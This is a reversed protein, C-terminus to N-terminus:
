KQFKYQHKDGRLDYVNLVYLGKPLNSIPIRNNECELSIMSYSNKIGSLDNIAKIEYSNIIKKDTLRSSYPSIEIYDDRQVFRISLMSNPELPPHITDTVTYGNANYAKIEFRTYLEKDIYATFYGQDYDTEEWTYPYIEGEDWQSIVVRTVGELNDLGIKVEKIYEDDDNIIRPAQAEVHKPLEDMHYYWVKNWRNTPANSYKVVRCRLKGDLTRAYADMPYHFTLDYYDIEPTVNIFDYYYVLDWTGDEKMISVFWGESLLYGTSPDYNSLFQNKYQAFTTVPVETDLFNYLKKNIPTIENNAAYRNGTLISGHYEIDDNTTSSIETMGNQIGGTGVLIDGRWKLTGKFFNNELNTEDFGRIVTSKGFNYNLLQTITENNKPIFYNLSANRNWTTPAYLEYYDTWVTGQTANNFLQCSDASYGLDNLIQAEFPTLADRDVMLYKTGTTKNKAGKFSCSIGLGKAIDRLVISVFDYQSYSTNGQLSFSCNNDIRGDYNYYTIQMEPSFFMASDLDVEDSRRVYKGTADGFTTAKAQSLTSATYTGDAISHKYISFSVESFIGSEITSTNNDMIAHIVIPYTSPIVEEWIKCAYKFAGKAELNWDGIFVPTIKTGCKVQRVNPLPLSQVVTNGSLYTQYQRQQYVGYNQATIQQTVFLCIVILHSIIQKM